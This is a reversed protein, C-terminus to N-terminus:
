TGSGGCTPGCDPGGGPCPVPFTPSGVEGCGEVCTLPESPPNFWLITTGDPAQSVSAGMAEVEAATIDDNSM